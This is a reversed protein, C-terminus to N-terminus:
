GHADGPKALRYAIVRELGLVRCLRESPSRRGHLMTSLDQEIIHWAAAAAKQTPYAAIRQRALELVQESTLLPRSGTEPTDTLAARLQDDSVGDLYLLRGGHAKVKADYEALLITRCAACPMGFVRVRVAHCRWCNAPPNM